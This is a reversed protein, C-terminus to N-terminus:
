STAPEEPWSKRLKELTTSLPEPLVRAEAVSTMFNTDGVWRPMAHVHFHGPVGAGAAAGLNAGFNVGDPRYAAKIAVVAGTVTAWLEAAEDGDLEEPEGVHRVPLVMVHGSTYPYANLIVAVRDGRWVVHEGDAIVRCLVCGRKDEGVSEIYESRWGAWLHKM